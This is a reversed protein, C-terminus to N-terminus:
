RQEHFQEQDGVSIVLKKKQVAMPKIAAVM